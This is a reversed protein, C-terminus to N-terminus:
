RGIRTSRKVGSRRQREDDDEGDKRAAWVFVALMAVVSALSFITIVISVATTM